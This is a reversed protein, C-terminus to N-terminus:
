LWSDREPLGGKASKDSALVLRGTCTGLRVCKQLRTGVVVGGGGGGSGGRVGAGSFGWSLGAGGCM